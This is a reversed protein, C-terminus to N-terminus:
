KQKGKSINKFVQEEVEKVNGGVFLAGQNKILINKSGRLTKLVDKTMEFSGPKQEKETSPIKDKLKKVIKEGNLQIVCNVDNRANHIMWHVPTDTKPTKPGIVLLVNRVPDYDVVELMEDRQISSLDNYDGNIIIRRGFRLSIIVSSIDKPNSQEKIKKGIRVIETILPCNVEEKSAYFTQFSINPIKEETM